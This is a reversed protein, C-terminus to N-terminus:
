PNLSTESSGSPSWRDRAPPTAAREHQKKRLCTNPATVTRLWQKRSMSGVSTSNAAVHVPAAGARETVAATTLGVWFNAASDLACSANEFGALSEARSSTTCARRGIV